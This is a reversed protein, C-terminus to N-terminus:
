GPFLYAIDWVILFLSMWDAICCLRFYNGPGCFNIACYFKRLECIRSQSAIKKKKKVIQCTFNAAERMTKM